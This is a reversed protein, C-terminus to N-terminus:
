RASPLDLYKNLLNLSWSYGRNIANCEDSFTQSANQQDELLGYM